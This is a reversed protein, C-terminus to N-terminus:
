TVAWPRVIYAAYRSPEKKVSLGFNLILVTLFMVFMEKNYYMLTPESTGLAGLYILAALDVRAMSTKKEIIQKITFRCVLFFLTLILLAGTYGFDIIMQLISNHMGYLEENETNFGRFLFAYQTSIGSAAHGYFGYGILHIPLLRLLERAGVAWILFRGSGIDGGEGRALVSQMDFQLIKIQIFGLIFPALPIMVTILFSKLNPKKNYFSAGIVSLIMAGTGGRSDTGILGFLCFPIIIAAAVRVLITAHRHLVLMVMAATTIGCIIGFGNTTTALPFMTRLMEIGFWGAMRGPPPDLVDSFHSEIGAFHLVVNAAVYVGWSFYLCLKINEIEEQDKNVILAFGFLVMTVLFNFEKALREPPLIGNFFCRIMGFITLMIFLMLFVFLSNSADTIKIDSSFFQYANKFIIVWILVFPVGYTMLGPISKFEFLHVFSLMTLSLLLVINDLHKGTLIM